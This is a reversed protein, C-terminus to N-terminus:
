IDVPFSVASDAKIRESPVFGGESPRPVAPAKVRSDPESAPEPVQPQAPEAPKVAPESQDPMKLAMLPTSSLLLVAALARMLVSYWAYM